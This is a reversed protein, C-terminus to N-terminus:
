AKPDPGYANTGKNGEPIVFVLLIIWGVFPILGFFIHTGPRGVDHLRRVTVALSPLLVALSYLPFIAFLPSFSFSGSQDFDTVFSTFTPGIAIAYLVNSIIANALAWWWYESRRARGSFDAYKAFVTKISEMFSM